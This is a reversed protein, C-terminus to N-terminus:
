KMCQKKININSWPIAEGRIVESAAIQKTHTAENTTKNDIRESRKTEM